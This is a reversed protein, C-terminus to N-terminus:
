FTAASAKNRPDFSLCRKARDPTLSRIEKFELCGTARGARWLSVWGIQSRRIQNQRKVFQRFTGPCPPARQTAQQPVISSLSSSPMPRLATLELELAETRTFSSILRTRELKDTTALHSATEPEAIESYSHRLDDNTMLRRVHEKGPFFRPPRSRRIAPSSPLTPLGCTTLGKEQVTPGLRGAALCGCRLYKYIVGALPNNVLCRVELESEYEPIDGGQQQTDTDRDFSNPLSPYRLM